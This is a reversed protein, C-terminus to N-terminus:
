PLLFYLARSPYPLWYQGTHGLIRAQLFGKGLLYAQFAVTQLTVSGSMVLIVKHVYVCSKKGTNGKGWPSKLTFTAWISPKHPSQRHWTHLSM